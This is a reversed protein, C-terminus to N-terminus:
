FRPSAPTFAAGGQGSLFNPGMVHSGSSGLPSQTRMSLGHDSGRIGTITGGGRHRSGNDVPTAPSYSFFQRASPLMTLPAAPVYAPVPASPQFITSLDKDNRDLKFTTAPTEPCNKSFCLPQQGYLPLVLGVLLAAFLLPKM